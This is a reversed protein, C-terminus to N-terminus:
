RKEAEAILIDASRAAGGLDVDLRSPPRSLAVDVAAALNKPTLDEEAVVEALGRAALLEARQTQETEGGAKFPVFVSPVGAVLIDIATNYGAQSVSLRARKLLEPFDPRAREVVIGDPAGAALKELTEAGHSHGVLLRWTADGARQSLARASLAADLLEGGVAGGGCSVIVEDIGEGAPAVASRAEHVYGTYRVLPAVEGAFPFSDELRVIEGDAHVLILDYRDRAIEAMRKEKAPDDKRVLIDRISTAILPRGEAHAADLLPDLEFAFKKRGFPYTETLLIDPRHDRFTTLLRDARMAKWAADIPADDGGIITQFSADAARAHPLEMVSVGDLSLTPPLANGTVFLTDVGRAGLARAIAAARVAHGTGLLHQVYILAKM